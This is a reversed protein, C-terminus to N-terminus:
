VFLLSKARYIRAPFNCVIFPVISSCCLLCVTYMLFHTFVSICYLAQTLLPLHWKYTQIVCENNLKWIVFHHKLAHVLPLFHIYQQVSCAHALLYIYFPNWDSIFIVVLMELLVISYSSSMSGLYKSQLYNAVSDLHKYYFIGRKKGHVSTCQHDYVTGYSEYM